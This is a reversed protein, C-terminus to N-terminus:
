AAVINAEFILIEEASLENVYKLLIADTNTSKAVTKGKALNIAAIVSTRTYNVAKYAFNADGETQTSSDAKECNLLYISSVNNIVPLALCQSSTFEAFPEETSWKKLLIFSGSKEYMVKPSKRTEEALIGYALKGVKPSTLFIVNDTAWPTHVTRVGDRETTVTRDVVVITLGFKRQMLGNVQELDPTPINTGVFNQSFAFNERTQANEALKDFTTDSMMLVKINDGKARAEKVVRKIDDIPKANTNSWPLSAGFKNSSLYGYDVRIGTGVNNENEVLGIGTSLGQLFIFELKEHIGMTAKVQDQFIKDVLISTEVNRAKLVDIDSMQKESLQLKMGLKPIDGSATGFSDRKKLPLASDLAVIDAAVINSNVTLSKWQLDVSLEETLMEKYLYTLETKKGNVKEEISKAIAKFYALFQVFLSQNM